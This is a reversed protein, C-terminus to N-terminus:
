PVQCFYIYMIYEQILLILYYAGITIFQFICLMLM